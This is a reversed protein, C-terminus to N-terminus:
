RSSIVAAIAENRSPFNDGVRKWATDDKFEGIWKGTSPNLRVQEDALLRMNSM